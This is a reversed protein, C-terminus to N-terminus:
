GNEQTIDAANGLLFVLEMYKTMNGTETTHLEMMSHKSVKDMSKDMSGYAQSVIHRILNMNREMDMNCDMKGLVMMYKVIRFRNFEKGMNFPLDRKM